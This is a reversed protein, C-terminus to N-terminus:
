HRSSGGPGARVRGRAAMGVGEGRHESVPANLATGLPKPATANKMTVDFGAVAKAWSEPRTSVQVMAADTGHAKSITVKASDKLLRSVIM